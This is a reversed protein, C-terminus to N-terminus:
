TKKADGTAGLAGSPICAVEVRMLGGILSGWAGRGDIVVMVGVVDISVVVVAGLTHLVDPSEVDAAMEIRSPSRFVSRAMVLVIAAYAPTIVSQQPARPHDDGYSWQGAWQEGGWRFEVYPEWGGQLEGLWELSMYEGNEPHPFVFGIHALGGSAGTMTSQYRGSIRGWPEDVMAVVEGARNEVDPFRSTLDTERGLREMSEWKGLVLSTWVAMVVGLSDTEAWLVGMGEIVVGAM